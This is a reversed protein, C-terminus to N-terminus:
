RSDRVAQAAGLGQAMRIREAATPHSFLALYLLRSPALDSVNALALQRHTHEFAEQDRTLELSCRDAEREWRRSIAAGFPMAVLQLVSGLLLVFPVVRPDGPGSANIASLLPPWQFLSWLVLVFFVAGTVALLTGKAVHHERRHALEHAIVLRTERPSARAALTDYLVLRRTRGLGSVYANLKRTRRSADAVLVEGVPVGADAALTRLDGALESDDLPRFRNFLPELVVPAAWSLLAGAGVAGVSVTLPWDRPFARAAAVLGVLAAVILFLSVALSKARDVAWGGATQTSLGWAREHLFGAWFGFPLRAITGVAVIEASFAATRAWWAWGSLPSSLWDGPSALSLLALLVLNLTVNIIAVAYLPRWYCKAREVQERGFLEVADVM